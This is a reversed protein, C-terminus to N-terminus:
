LTDNLQSADVTMVTDLVVEPEEMLEFQAARSFKLPHAKLREKKTVRRVKNSSLKLKTKEVEKIEKKTESTMEELRTNPSTSVETMAEETEISMLSDPTENVEETETWTRILIEDKGEGINPVVFAYVVGGILLALGTLVALQKM